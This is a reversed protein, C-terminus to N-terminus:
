TVDGGTDVGRSRNCINRMRVEEGFARVKNMHSYGLDTKNEVLVDELDQPLRKEKPLLDAWM